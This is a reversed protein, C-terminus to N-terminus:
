VNRSDNFIHWSIDNTQKSFLLSDYFKSRGIILTTSGSGSSKQWSPDPDPGKQCLFKKLIIKAFKEASHDLEEKIVYM